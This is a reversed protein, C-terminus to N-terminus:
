FLSFGIGGGFGDPGYHTMEISFEVRRPEGNRDFFTQTDRISKICWQGYYRGLNSAVGRPVGRMAERRMDELQAFGNGLRPDKPYIVGRLSVTEEGPGLFQQAPRRGIRDQAQWRFDFTREVDQYNLGAIQFRYPGVGLLIPRM